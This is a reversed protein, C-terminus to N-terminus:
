PRGGSPEEGSIWRLAGGSGPGRGLIRGLGGALTRAEADFGWPPNVVGLGCGRLGPAAPDAVLEAVLSPRGAGRLFAEIAGAGARATLPYWVAIVASPLRRLCEALAAGVLRHEAEQEYPPDILVLARRSPPPLCARGAGYGDAEHIGTHERWGVAARLAACEEPHREWLELRDQPRALAAMLAPSGPYFSPGEGGPRGNAAANHAAVLDLYGRLLGALAETGANGAGEPGAVRDGGGAGAGERGQGALGWLRGIGGPWEPQRALTDGRAAERLDYTGRGAHTDVMLVGAPKRQLANILRVLLAHKLIDAFNGAHYAHRYNM